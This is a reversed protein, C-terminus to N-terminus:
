SQSRGHYSQTRPHFTCCHKVFGGEIETSANRAALGGLEPGPLAAAAALTAALLMTVLKIMIAM